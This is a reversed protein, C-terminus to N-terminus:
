KAPIPLFKHLKTLSAPQSSHWGPYDDSRELQRRCPPIWLLQPAASYNKNWVLWSYGTATSAKPDLRGKVMPVREVFQAFLAPPRKRFLREYRGASEIFVTRVLIAVGRTAVDLARDVFREALSFPPNTIIWDYQGVTEDGSLFDATKGYGYAAIDSADVHDFYESLVKAMHGAGCAPELCTMHRTDENLVHEVLARTAWPPTPFDDLSGKPEVRQAMVAHSTNQM